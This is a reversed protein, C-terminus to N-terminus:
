TMIILVFNVDPIKKGKHHFIMVKTKSANVALKNARLWIGLKQVEFNVLQVLEELNKGKCLVSTDDAFHINLLNNSSHMDNIFILFLLPGLISGQLVSINILTFFDSLNGNVMVFQKRDSLYSKFWKLALGHVDIKELKMLLISHDVLDFAKQLDLFVAVAFEDNNFAKSIYDIVHMLPHVTSKGPQFGFQLDYLLNNDIVYSHKSVM